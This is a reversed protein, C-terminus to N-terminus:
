RHVKLLWVQGRDGRHDDRRDDRRHDRGGGNRDNDWSRTCDFRSWAHRRQGQRGAAQCSGYDHHQGAIWTGDNQKGSETGAAQAPGSLTGALAVGLLLSASLRTMTSM